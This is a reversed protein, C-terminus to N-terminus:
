SQGFSKKLKVYEEMVEMLVETKHKLKDKLIDAEQKSKKLESGGDTKEFVLNGGEFLEQQWKYIQTPQLDYKECVESIPKKDLLVERLIQMKKTSDWSRRSGPGKAQVM